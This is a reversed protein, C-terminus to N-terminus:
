PYAALVNNAKIYDSTSILESVVALARAIDGLVAGCSHGPQLSDLWNALEIFKLDAASLPEVGRMQKVLAVGARASLTIDDGGGTVASSTDDIGILVAKAYIEAASIISM